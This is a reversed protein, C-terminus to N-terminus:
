AAVPAYKRVETELRDLARSREKPPLQSLAKKVRAPAKEYIAAELEAKEAGRRQPTVLVLVSGLLLGLGTAALPHLGFRVRAVYVASGLLLGQAFTNGLLKPTTPSGNWSRKHEHARAHYAFGLQERV